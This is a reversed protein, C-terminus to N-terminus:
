VEEFYSGVLQSPVYYLVTGKGTDDRICLYIKEGESYYKDKFYRIGSAAPIPDDLTGDHEEPILEFQTPSLSPKWDDQRKHAMIVKYLKGDDGCVRLENEVDEATFETYEDWRAFLKPVKIAKANSLAKASERIIDRYLKAEDRTM